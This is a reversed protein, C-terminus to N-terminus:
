FLEKILSPIFLYENFVYLIIFFLLSITFLLTDLILYTGIIDVAVIHVIHFISISANDFTQKANNLSLHNEFGVCMTM